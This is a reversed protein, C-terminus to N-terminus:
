LGNIQLMHVKGTYLGDGFPSEAFALESQLHQAWRVRDCAPFEGSCFTLSPLTTCDSLGRVSVATRPGAADVDAPHEKSTGLRLGQWGSRSCTIQTKVSM